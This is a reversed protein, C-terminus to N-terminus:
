IVTHSDAPPKVGILIYRGSAARRMFQQLDESSGGEYRVTDSDVVAVIRPSDTPREKDFWITYDAPGDETFFSTQVPVYKHSKLRQQSYRTLKISM